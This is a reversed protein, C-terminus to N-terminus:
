GVCKTSFELTKLKKHKPKLLPHEAPDWINKRSLFDSIFWFFKHEPFILARQFVLSKRLGVINQWINYMYLGSDRTIENNKLNQVKTYTSPARRSRLYKQKVFFRLHILFLKLELFIVTRKSILSKWLIV